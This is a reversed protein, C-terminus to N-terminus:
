KIVEGGGDCDDHLWRLSSAFSSLCFHCFFAVSVSKASEASSCAARVVSIEIWLSRLLNNAWNIYHRQARAGSIVNQAFTKRRLVRECRSAAATTTRPRCCRSLSFIFLINEMECLFGFCCSNIIQSVVGGSFGEGVCTLRGWSLGDACCM